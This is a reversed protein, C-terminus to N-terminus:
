RHMLSLRRVHEGVRAESSLSRLLQLTGPVELYLVRRPKTTIVDARSPPTSNSSWSPGRDAKDTYLEYKGAMTVGGNPIRYGRVDQGWPAALRLPRSSVGAM